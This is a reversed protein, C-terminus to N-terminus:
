GASRLWDAIRGAYGDIAEATTVEILLWGPRDAAAALRARHAAWAAAYANALDEARGVEEAAEGAEVGEFRVRGAFPFAIEAPDQVAVIVGSAGHSAAEAVWDLSGDDLFDGAAVIVDAPGVEPLEPVGGTGLSGILQVPALPRGEPPTCCSEGAEHAAICLAGLIAQAFAGKGTKTRESAFDMSATGDLWLWLRVPDERERERVHLEDSRASRRWDVKDAAEGAELTRYQWFESGPGARRRPHSGAHQGRRARARSLRLPGIVAALREADDFVTM